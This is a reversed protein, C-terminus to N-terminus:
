PHLVAARSQLGDADDFVAYALRLTIPAQEDENETWPAGIVCLWSKTITVTCYDGRVALWSRLAFETAADSDDDM